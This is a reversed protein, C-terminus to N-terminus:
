RKLVRALLFFHGLLILGAVARIQTKDEWKIFLSFPVVLRCGQALCESYAIAQSTYGAFLVLSNNSGVSFIPMSCFFNLRGVQYKDMVMNSPDVTCVMGFYM